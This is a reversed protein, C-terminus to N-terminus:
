NQTERNLFHYPIQYQPLTPHCTNLSPLFSALCLSFLQAPLSQNLQATDQQTPTVTTHHPPTSKHETRNHTHTHTSYRTVNSQMSNSKTRASLVQTSSIQRSNFKTSNFETHPSPNPQTIVLPISNSQVPNPHTQTPSTSILQAPNVQGSNLLISAPQTPRSLFTLFSELYVPIHLLGSIWVTSGLCSSPTLHQPSVQYSQSIQASRHTQSPKARLTDM